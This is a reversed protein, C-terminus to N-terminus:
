RTVTTTAKVPKFDIICVPKDNTIIESVVKYYPYKKSPNSFHSFWYWNQILIM